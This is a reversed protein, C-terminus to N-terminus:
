PGGDLMKKMEVCQPAEANQGGCNQQYMAAGVKPCQKIASRALTAPDGKFPSGSFSVPQNAKIAQEIQQRAEPTLFSVLVPAMCACAEDLDVPPLQYSNESMCRAYFADAVQDAAAPPAGALWALSVTILAAITKM